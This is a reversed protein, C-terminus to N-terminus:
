EKGPIVLDIEWIKALERVKIKPFKKTEYAPRLGQPTNVLKIGRVRHVYKICIKVLSDFMDWIADRDTQSIVHEGKSNTATFLIKFANINSTDIPLHQFIVHANKIFFEEERAKIQAWHDCSHKIFIEILEVPNYGKLYSEAFLILQPNLDKTGADWCVTALEHVLATLDLINTIFREEEPPQESM